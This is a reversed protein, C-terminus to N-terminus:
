NKKKLKLFNTGKPFWRRLMGNWNENRGRQWSSYPFAFYVQLDKVSSELQSTQTFELGNDFTISKFPLKKNNHILLKLKDLVYDSKKSNLLM